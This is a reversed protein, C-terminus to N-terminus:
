QKENLIKELGKDLDKMAEWVDHEELMEELQGESSAVLISALSTLLGIVTEKEQTLLAQYIDELASLINLGRKQSIAIQLNPKTEKIYEWVNHPFANESEFM